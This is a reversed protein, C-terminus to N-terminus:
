EIRVAALEGRVLHPGNGVAYGLEGFWELVADKVIFKNLSMCM